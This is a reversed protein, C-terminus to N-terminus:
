LTSIKPTVDSIVSLASQIQVLKFINSGKKTEEDMNMILTVEIKCIPHALQYFYTIHAQYQVNIDSSVEFKCLKPWEPTCM